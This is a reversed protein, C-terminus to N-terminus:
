ANLGETVSEAKKEKWFLQFVYRSYELGPQNNIYIYEIKYKSKLPIHYSLKKKSLFNKTSLLTLSFKIFNLKM